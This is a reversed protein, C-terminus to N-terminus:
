PEDVVIPLRLTTRWLPPYSERSAQGDSGKDPVNEPGSLLVGDAKDARAQMSGLGLGSSMASNDYALSQQGVENVMSIVFCTEEVTCTLTVTSRPRSHKVANSVMETLVKSVTSRDFWPGAPPVGDPVTSRNAARAIEKPLNVNTVVNFGHAKMEKTANSFTRRLPPADTRTRFATNAPEENLLRLMTRLQDLADRSTNSIGELEQRTSEDGGYAQALNLAQARMVVSTLSTAVSDHLERALELRQEREQNALSDRLVQQRRGHNYRNWGILYTFALLFAVIGLSVPDTVLIQDMPDVASLAWQAIALFVGVTLLGRAVVIELVLAAFLLSFIPAVDGLVFASTLLFLSLISAILPLRATIGVLGVILGAVLVSGATVRADTVWLEAVAMVVAFVTEVTGLRLWRQRLEPKRM